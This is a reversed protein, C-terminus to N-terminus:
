TEDEKNDQVMADLAPIPQIEYEELGMLTVIRELSLAIATQELEPLDRISKALKDQLPPPAKLIIESGLNTTSVLVKRRDPDNRERNLYGANELRDLIGNLTSASISLRRSIQASTLPGQRAILHLCLLQPGTIRFEKFLKRSYSDVGHIIRRLALLIRLGTFEFFPDSM